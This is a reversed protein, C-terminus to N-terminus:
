PEKVAYVGPQDRVQTFVVGIKAAEAELRDFDAVPKEIWFRNLFTFVNYVRGAAVGGRFADIEEASPAAGFLGAAFRRCFEAPDDDYVPLPDLSVAALNTTEGFWRGLGRYLRAVGGNPLPAATVGLDILQKIRACRDRVESPADRFPERAAAAAFFLPLEHLLRARPLLAYGFGELYSEALAPSQRALEALDQRVLQNDDQRPRDAKAFEEAETAAFGQVLCAAFEPRRFAFTSLIEKVEGISTLRQGFSRYGPCQWSPRLADISKAAVDLRGKWFAPLNEGVFYDFDDGRLYAVARWTRPWEPWDVRVRSGVNWVGLLLLPAFLALAAATPLRSLFYCCAALFFPFVIAIYQRGAIADGDLEMYHLSFGYSALFLAAQGLLAIGFLDPAGHAADRQRVFNRFFLLYGGLTLGFFLTSSISGTRAFIHFLFIKALTVYRESFWAHLSASPHATAADGFFSYPTLFHPSFGVAFAALAAVLTHRWPVDGRCFYVAVLLAAAFLFNDYVFLCALGAVFAVATTTGLRAGLKGKDALLMFILGTFFLNEIHAAWTRHMFYEFLPPPFICLLAFLIAARAGWQRRIAITWFVLGATVMLASLLKEWFYSSGAVYFIPTLLLGFIAPGHCNSRYQYVWPPAALGDILGRALNGYRPVEDDFDVSFRSFVRWGYITLGLLLLLLWVWSGAHRSPLTATERSM